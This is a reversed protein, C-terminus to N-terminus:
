IKTGNPPLPIRVYSMCGLDIAFVLFYVMMSKANDSVYVFELLLNGPTCQSSHVLKYVKSCDFNIFFGYLKVLLLEHLRM